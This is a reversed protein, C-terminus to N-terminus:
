FFIVTRLAASSSPPPPVASNCRPCSPNARSTLVYFLCSPCAAAFMPGEVAAGGSCRDPGIIAVSSSSSKSDNEGEDEKRILERRRKVALSSTTTTSSSSSGPPPSGIRSRRHSARELAIRVKELTCVSQYEAAPRKLTLELSLGQIRDEAATYDKVKGDDGAASGCRSLLDRTQLEGDGGHAKM